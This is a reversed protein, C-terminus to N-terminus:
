ADRAPAVHAMLAHCQPLTLWSCLVIVLVATVGAPPFPIGKLVMQHLLGVFVLSLLLGAGLSLLLHKAPAQALLAIGPFTAKRHILATVFTICSAIKAVTGAVVGVLTTIQPHWFVLEVVLTALLLLAPVLSIMTDRLLAASPTTKM